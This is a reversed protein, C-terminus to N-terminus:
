RKDDDGGMLNHKNRRKTAQRQLGNLFDDGFVFPLLFLFLLLLFLGVRLAVLRRRKDDDGEMLNHINTEETAEQRQLCNLFDDGFVRSFFAFFDVAMSGFLFKDTTSLTTHLKITTKM